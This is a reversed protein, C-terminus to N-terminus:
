REGKRQPTQDVVRSLIFCDDSTLFGQMNTTKTNM